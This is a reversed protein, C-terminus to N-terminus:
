KLADFPLATDYYTFEEVANVTQVADESILPCIRNADYGSGTLVGDVYVKVMGNRERVVDARVAKQQSLVTDSKAKVGMCDAILRGNSVSIVLDKGQTFLIGDQPASNLELRLTFDSGGTYVGGMKGNEHYVLTQTETMANGYIDSVAVVTKIEEGNSLEMPLSVRVESYNPLLEAPLTTGNLTFSDEKVVIRKDFTLQATNASLMKARLVQPANAQAKGFKFIRIEHPQLDVEVTDGYGYTKPEVAATYPLIVACILDSAGEGVGIRRDLTFSFCQPRNLPNRVSVIGEAGDWDSYGYVSGTEPSEGILKANRLIHFNEAVFKLVDANIQWKAENFMSFSYYLEWFATGRTAIMYMYQRYEDDTMSINATNGYIPEHNYMNSLPFQYARTRHFDFYRGDRHTLMKDFDKGQMPEGSKTKDVFDIDGSNQMWLSECFQLYWPSANCYSTQNLWLSKGVASRADRMERFIEIWREWHDTFCYMGEYGGTPHGHNKSPCSKLHFGDLKWYNIDFREMYDSFLDTINKQYRHDATCVDRSRRNYGGKGAKQMRKAFKPTKSNYGGRPGLWLGFDSSFNKALAASEYLENPFKENFCWFDQDYDPWGDDVVYSHVPPVGNQTLGKEIEFFSDRINDKNIDLMHDFWSNYQTRLYLPQSISQIYALFDARIVEPELSRAAGFVTKWTVYEKAGKSLESLSKGAYYRVHAIGNEINNDNAPFESGTYMGNLYIPQGLAAQFPSLFAKKMDPRSWKQQLGRPLSIYETDISDMEVQADSAAIKLYKYLFPADDRVEICESILYTVDLAHFPAFRIELTKKGDKEATLIDSVTLMSSKLVATKKRKVLIRIMFEESCPQFVLDIPKETRRNCIFVTRLKREESVSFVRVIYANGVAIKGDEALIFAQNPYNM